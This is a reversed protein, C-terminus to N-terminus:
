YAGQADAHCCYGRARELWHGLDFLSDLPWSEHFHGCQGCTHQHRLGYAGETPLGREDEYRYIFPEGLLTMEASCAQDGSLFMEDTGHLTITLDRNPVLLAAGALTKAAYQARGWLNDRAVIVATAREADKDSQQQRWAESALARLSVAATTHNETVSTM